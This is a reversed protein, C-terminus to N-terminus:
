CHSAQQVCEIELVTFESRVGVAAAREHQRVLKRRAPEPPLMLRLVAPTLAVRLNLWHGDNSVKTAQLFYNALAIQDKTMGQQNRPDALASRAFWRLGGLITSIQLAHSASDCEGEAGVEFNAGNPQGAITVWRLSQLLTRLQDFSGLDLPLDKLVSDTSRHYIDSAWGGAGYAGRSRTEGCSDEWRTGCRTKCRAGFRHAGAFAAVCIAVGEFGPRSVRVDNQREGHDRPGIANRVRRDQRCRIARRRAGAGPAYTGGAGRAGFRNPRRSDPWAAIAVTDLDRTYDFGTERVFASYDGDEAPSPGLKELEQM